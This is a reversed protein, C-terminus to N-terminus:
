HFYFSKSKLMDWLPMIKAQLFIKVWFSNVSWNTLKFFLEKTLLFQDCAACKPIILIIKRKLGQFRTTIIKTFYAYSLMRAQKQIAGWTKSCLCFTMIEGKQAEASSIGSVRQVMEVPFSPVWWASHVCRTSPLWPVHAVACPCLSKFKPSDPCM